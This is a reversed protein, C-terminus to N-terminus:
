GLVPELCDVVAARLESPKSPMIFVFDAGAMKTRRGYATEKPRGYLSIIPKQNRTKLQAIFQNVRSGDEPARSVSSVYHGFGIYERKSIFARITKDQAFHHQM